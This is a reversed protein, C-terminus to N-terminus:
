SRVNGLSKMLVIQGADNFLAAGAVFARTGDVFGNEALITLCDGAETTQLVRHSDWGLSDRAANFAAVMAARGEARGGAADWVCDDAFIRAAVEDVDGAFLAHAMEVYRAGLPGHEAM